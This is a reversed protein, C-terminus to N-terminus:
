HSPEFFPVLRRINVCETTNATCQILVTGNIPLQEIDIIKYPGETPRALTRLYPNEVGRRILVRDNLRYEHRIRSSNEKTTSDISKDQRRHQIAAWNALYTTPMITDRQFALQGPTAQLTTHYTSNIAWTVPALQEQQADLTSLAQSMLRTSRLLNGIVQHTRELIGNAQPNRVTTLKSKVGYSQLMEQFEIGVFESGNDHVCEVPRPYHSFWARDLARAVTLTEKNPIAVLEMLCTALDIITLANFKTPESNTPSKPMSNKKAQLRHDQAQKESILQYSVPFNTDEQNFCTDTFFIQNSPTNEIMPLRSLADAIINTKSPLYAIKPGYEEVILRWRTVRDTTFNAFTLNKHDTYVVIKQGLLISRYERLTEVLAPLELETVTYRTQCDTLKRSYFAIPKNEQTIVAGIQYKSADTYIEFTKTFDPYALIVQRALERKLSDFAEQHKTEWKFTKSTKKTLETLPTVLHSRKPIMEKYHNLMGVFSRVQKVTRPPAIKLIAEIKSQQPKIRDPTLMFGLYETERKCFSSKAANVQLNNAALRDLVQRLDQCHKEFTGNTLVLIDDQYVVIHPMDTFLSSMKEQYIDPSCALGMPLRQYCYKGWPLIITCLEQSPNDLPITWFGMNLDLASCFTFGELTRRTEHISPLPFPRRIIHENLRRFDSVFRIQQNKKPVGFSPAAWESINARRLVGLDLLRQIEDRLLKEYAKPVSFARGHFPKAGPRIDIHVPKGPLRGLRGQFMHEYEFLLDLLQKKENNKLHAPVCSRLNAQQYTAKTFRRKDMFEHEAQEITSQYFLHRLRPRTWYGRPKCEISTEGNMTITPTDTSFLVDLNLSRMLDRGLIIDYANKSPKPTEDIKFSHKFNRNPAFETLQFWTSLIHNTHYTGGKTTWSVKGEPDTEVKKQLKTPLSSKYAISRTAGTDVLARLYKFRRTALSDPVAIVIEPVYDQTQKHTDEQKNENFYLSETESNDNENDSNSNPEEHQHHEDQRQRQSQSRTNYRNQRQNNQNQNDRNNNQNSNRNRNSNNRNSNNQGQNRPNQSCENWSHRNSRHLHCYVQDDNNNRNRRSNGQNNSGRRNNGQRNNGQRNNGQRNNNGRRQRANEQDELSEYYNMLENVDTVSTQANAEIFSQKWAPVSKKITSFLVAEGLRTNLEGPLYPLYRDLEFLRRKFSQIKMSSPKKANMIFERLDETTGPNAGCNVIFQNMTNAFRIDTPNQDQLIDTRADIWKEKAEGTLLLATNTFKAQANFQKPMALEEFQKRWYLAAELPGDEFIPVKISTTDDDADGTSIKYKAHNTFIKDFEPRTLTFKMTPLYPLLFLPNFEIHGIAFHPHPFYTNDFSLILM